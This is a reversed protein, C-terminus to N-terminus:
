QRVTVPMYALYAPLGAVCWYGSCAEFDASNSSDVAPQGVTSQVAFSASTTTQGGSALVQPSMTYPGGTQAQAVPALLMGWVGCIGIAIRVILVFLRKHTSISLMINDKRDLITSLALRTTAIVGSAM